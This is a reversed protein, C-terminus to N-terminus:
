IKHSFYNGNIWFKYKTHFIIELLIVNQYLQCMMMMEIWHIMLRLIELCDCFKYKTHFIIEM